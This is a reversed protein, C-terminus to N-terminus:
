KGQRNLEACHTCLRKGGTGTRLNEKEINNGETCKTNNHYVNEKVSHWPAKKPMLDAGKAINKSLEDVLNYRVNERREILYRGKELIGWLGVGNSM